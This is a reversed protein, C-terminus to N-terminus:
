LNYKNNLVSNLIISQLKKESTRLKEIQNHLFQIDRKNNEIEIKLLENQKLLGKINDM